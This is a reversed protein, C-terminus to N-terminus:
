VRVGCARDRHSSVGTLDAKVFHTFSFSLLFSIQGATAAESEHESGLGADSSSM